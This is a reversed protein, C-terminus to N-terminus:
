QNANLIDLVESTLLESVTIRQLMPGTGKHIAGVLQGSASKVPNPQWEDDELRTTKIASELLLGVVIETRDDVERGLFCKVLAIRTSMLNKSAKGTVFHALDIVLQIKNRYKFVGPIYVPCQPVQTLKVQPLVKVIDATPIVYLDDGLTFNLYEM